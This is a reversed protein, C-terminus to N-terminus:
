IYVLGPHGGNSFIPNEKFLWFKKRKIYFRLIFQFKLLSM